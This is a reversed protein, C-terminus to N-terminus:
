PVFLPLELIQTLLMLNLQLNVPLSTLMKNEVIKILKSIELFFSLNLQFVNFILVTDLFSLEFLVNSSDFHWLFLLFDSM